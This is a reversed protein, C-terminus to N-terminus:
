IMKQLAIILNEYVLNELRKFDSSYTYVKKGPSDIGTNSNGESAFTEEECMLCCEEDSEKKIQIGFSQVVNEIYEKVLSINGFMQEPRFCIGLYNKSKVPM